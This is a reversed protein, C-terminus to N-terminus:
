NCALNKNAEKELKYSILTSLQQYRFRVNRVLEQIRYLELENVDHDVNMQGLFGDIVELVRSLEGKLEEVLSM